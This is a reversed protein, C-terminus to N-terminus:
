LGAVPGSAARANDPTRTLAQELCTAAEPHRNQAQLTSALHLSVQPPASEAALAKRFSTEAASWQGQRFEGVGQLYAAVAHAPDIRLIQQLRSCALPWNGSNLHRVAEDLLDALPDRAPSSM